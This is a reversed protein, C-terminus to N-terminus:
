SVLYEAQPIIWTIGLERNERTPGEFKAPMAALVRNARNGCESYGESQEATHPLRLPSRCLRAGSPIAESDIGCLGPCKCVDVARVLAGGAIVHPEDM